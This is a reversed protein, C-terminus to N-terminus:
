LAVGDTWSRVSSIVSDLRRVAFANSESPRAFCAVWYRPMLGRMLANRKDVRELGRKGGRGARKGHMQMRVPAREIGFTGRIAAPPRLADRFHM